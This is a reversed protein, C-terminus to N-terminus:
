AATKDIRQVGSVSAGAAELLKIATAFSPQEGRRARTITGLSMGLAHALKEDSDAGLRERARDIVETRIKYM